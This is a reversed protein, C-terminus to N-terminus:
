LDLWSFPLKEMLIQGVVPGPSMAMLMQMVQLWSASVPLSMRVWSESPASEKATSRSPM